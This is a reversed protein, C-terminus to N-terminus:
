KATLRMVEPPHKQVKVQPVKAGGKPGKPPTPEPGKAAQKAAEKAQKKAAAKATRMAAAEERKVRIKAIRDQAKTSSRAARSAAKEKDSLLTELSRTIAWTAQAVFEDVETCECKMAAAAMDAGLLNAIYSKVWDRAAKRAFNGVVVSEPKAQKAM